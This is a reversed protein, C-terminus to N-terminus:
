VFDIDKNSLIEKYDTYRSSISYKDAIKNLRIEDTDCIAHIEVDDQLTLYGKIHKECIGGAGIIACRLKEM